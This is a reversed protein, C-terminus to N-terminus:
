PILTQDSPITWGPDGSEGVVGATVLDNTFARLADARNAQDDMDLATGEIDFRTFTQRVRLSYMLYSICTNPDYHNWVASMGTSYGNPAGCIDFTRSVGRLSYLITDDPGVQFRFTNRSVRTFDLTDELYSIQSATSDIASTDAIIDMVTQPDIQAVTIGDPTADIRASGSVSNQYEIQVPLDCRSYTAWRQANQFVYKQEPCGPVIAETGTYNYALESGSRSAIYSLFGNRDFLSQITM